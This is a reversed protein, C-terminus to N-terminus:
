ILKKLKEIRAAFLDSKAPNKLSLAQYVAIARQYRKQQEYITALTETALDPSIENESNSKKREVPKHKKIQAEIFEDLGKSYHTEEKVLEHLYDATINAAYLKELEDPEQTTAETKDPPTSALASKIKQGSFLQLWEDFTHPEHLSVENSQDDVTEKATVDAITDVQAADTNAADITTQTGTSNSAEFTIDAEDTTTKDVVVDEVEAVLDVTPVPEMSEEIAAVETIPVIEQALGSVTVGTIEEPTISPTVMPQEKAMFIEFLLDRNQAYLAAMQLQEDYRPNNEVQYKKALLLHAQHFYPYKRVMEELQHTSFRQLLQGFNQKTLVGLM